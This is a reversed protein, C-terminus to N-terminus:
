DSYLTGDRPSAGRGGARRGSVETLRRPDVRVARDAVRLRYGSVDDVLVPLVAPDGISCPVPLSAGPRRGEIFAVVELACTLDRDCRVKRARFSWVFYWTMALLRCVLLVLRVGQRDTFSLATSVLSDIVAEFIFELAYVVGAVIWMILTHRADATEDIIRQADADLLEDVTIGFYGAILKLSEVDPLTRGCEWNSVTQRAVLVERAFDAQTVGREERLARIRMGLEREVM